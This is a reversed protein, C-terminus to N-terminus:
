ATSWCVSCSKESRRASAACHRSARRSKAKVYKTLASRATKAAEARMSAFTEPNDAISRWAEFGDFELAM